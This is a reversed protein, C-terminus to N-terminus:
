VENAVFGTTAQGSGCGVELVRNNPRLKAFAILDSFLESPYGSRYTDYAAAVGNFTRARELALSWWSWM